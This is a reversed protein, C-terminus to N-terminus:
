PDYAHTARHLSSSRLLRAVASASLILFCNMGLEGVLCALEPRESSKVLTEREYPRFTEYCVTTITVIYHTVNSRLLSATDASVRSDESVLVSSLESSLAVIARTRPIDRRVYLYNQELRSPCQSWRKCRSESQYPM